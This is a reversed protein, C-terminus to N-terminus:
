VLFRPLGVKRGLLQVDKHVQERYEKFSFKKYISPECWSQIETDYSPCFFYATSYREVRPNTVVRHEVSKYVDNSWAQFLDGVNVILAEPNPKVAFWKGAKILQLGGVQDQHLITLFDSDTHPTLGFVDAPIPCPPYRNFRLYCTSPVCNEEFFTSKCGLKEALIEALRQALNAVKTAFQEMTSSLSTFGNSASVDTLPIHFAESWSLQSICTATPTGWRYTGSSFNLFKDEQRKKDFSQKFLKVQERRMKELIERSIGHNVVQFFGWEQSARTIEEKCKDKEDSEDVSLRRLDILPLECEDVVVSTKTESKNLITNDLLTNYIEHFPPDMDM